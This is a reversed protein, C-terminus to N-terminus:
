PREVCARWEPSGFPTGEAHCRALRATAAGLLPSLAVLLRFLEGDSLPRLPIARDDLPLPRGDDGLVLPPFPSLHRRDPEPPAAGALVLAAAATVLAACKRTM